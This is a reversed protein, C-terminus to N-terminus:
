SDRGTKVLWDQYARYVKPNEEQSIAPRSGAGITVEGGHVIIAAGASQALARFGDGSAYFAHQLVRERRSLEPKHPNDEM